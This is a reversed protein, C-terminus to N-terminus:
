LGKFDFAPIFSDEATDEGQFFANEIGLDIAYDLLADYEEPDVKRTLESFTASRPMPTYQNMISLYITDGFTEYLYRIVNRSDEVRGPLMMHRVITGRAMLPGSYDDDYGYQDGSVDNQNDHYDEADALQSILENYELATLYGIKADNGNERFFIPAGTQRAMEAIAKACVTFYDAAKSYKYSLESSFYKCDPLYIDVLGELMQLVEVKEYGSTNYVVPIRLGQDKARGLASVIQPVFHTPTVLNINCAKQEQLELFIESLREGTIEKEVQGHAIEYNQCFVCGMNCGSFFVAGSGREGSICPEEWFHLAARAATIQASQGCYGKEGLSRNVRCNRPCLICSEM